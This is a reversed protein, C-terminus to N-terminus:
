YSRLHWFAGGYSSNAGLKATLFNGDPYYRANFIRSMLMDPHTVIRWAQKGLLALNFEYLKRFGMGGEAKKM